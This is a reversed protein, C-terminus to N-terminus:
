TSLLRSKRLQERFVFRIVERRFREEIEVFAGRVFQRGTVTRFTDVVAVVIDFSVDGLELTLMLRTDKTVPEHLELKVGGGSLDHMKALQRNGIPESDADVPVVVLSPLEVLERVYQRRQDRRPLGKIMIVLTDPPRMGILWGASVYTAAGSLADIWIQDDVHTRRPDYSPAQRDLRVEVMEGDVSQVQGPISTEGGDLTHWRIRVQQMPYMVDLLTSKVEVPASAELDVPGADESHSIVPSRRGFMLTGEFYSRLLAIDGHVRDIEFSDRQHKWRSTM